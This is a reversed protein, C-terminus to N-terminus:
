YKKIWNKVLNKLSKTLSPPNPRNSFELFKEDFEKNPITELPKILPLDISQVPISCIHSAAKTHTGDERFGINKILNIKPIITLGQNAVCNFAWQGDWSDIQNLYNSEFVNYVNNAQKGFYYIDNETKYKNWLKMEIDYHNWARRWTAWGWIPVLRSFLFSTNLHPQPILNTGALHMIQEHNYYYELLEECFAFFSPEPLCDDELIIAKEVQSFVWDLGSSVRYKCGLNTDSFNTLVECDWDVNKIVQRTKLCKEEEEPFRAGDAVVLLKHPKAQRIAEFVQATLDPRNFIFFAVPTLLAM